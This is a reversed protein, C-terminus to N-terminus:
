EVEAFCDLGAFYEESELEVVCDAVSPFQRIDMSRTRIKTGTTTQVTRRFTVQADIVQCSQFDGNNTVRLVMDRLTARENQLDDGARHPYKQNLVKFPKGCTAAPMWIRGAIIGRVEVSTHVTQQRTQQTNHTRM